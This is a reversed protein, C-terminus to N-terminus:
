ERAFGRTPPSISTQLRHVLVLQSHQPQVAAVVFAVHDPPVDATLLTARGVCCESSAKEIEANRASLVTGFITRRLADRCLSCEDVSRWTARRHAARQTDNTGDNRLRGYVFDFFPLPPARSRHSPRSCCCSWRVIPESPEVKHRRTTLVSDGFAPPLRAPRNARRAADSPLWALSRHKTQQKVSTNCISARRKDFCRRVIISINVCRTNTDTPSSPAILNANRTHAPTPLINIM